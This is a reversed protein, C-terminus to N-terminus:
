TSNTQRAARVFGLFPPSPRDPRSLFEPHFQTGLYFPHKDPPIEAIEMRRGSEDHGTFRLTTHQEVREVIDPNVEYRHRHREEICERKYLRHALTETGGHLMTRRSGLRMTGGMRARSIEPMCVIAYEREGGEGERRDSDSDENDDSAFEESQADDWELGYRCAAVVMMQMGLCIGLYPVKQRRAYDAAAIMGDVGRDGFGGPVLIGDVGHLDTGMLTGSDVQKIQVRCDLACAAHQLAKIVSKYSDMLNTYKGVLAIRVITDEEDRLEDIRRAMTRWVALDVICNRLGFYRYLLYTYCQEDLLLPVRYINSVDHVSFVCETDVHCFQAIKHRGDAGLPTKSRCMIANPYLGLSRLRAASTQTPKTKQECDPGAEPVLSVLVCCCRHRFQFQRLAEVFPMSEIDGVTGGLEIVCADAGSANAVREIWAQIEDCVHPVVQVTKGLYDGRREKAIVKQYVKGTTLNNDRSLTVDLFREYNGLDLDVEGGDDLVFVEGHEFPSMTGADINLYPDIKIATVKLGLRKLLLGTSSAIVGKGIGSMVGGVIIVYIM